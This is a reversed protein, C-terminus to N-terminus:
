EIIIKKFIGIIEESNNAARLEQEVSGTEQNFILLCKNIIEAMENEIKEKPLTEKKLCKRYHKILKQVSYYLDPKQIETSVIYAPPGCNVTKTYVLKFQELKQTLVEGLLDDSDCEKVEPFNCAINKFQFVDQANTSISVFLLFVLVSLKM